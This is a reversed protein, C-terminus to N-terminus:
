RVEGNGDEDMDALVTEMGHLDKGVSGLRNMRPFCM